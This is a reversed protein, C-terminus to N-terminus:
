WIPKSTELAKDSADEFAKQLSDLLPGTVFADIMKSLARRVLYRFSRDRTDIKRNRWTITSNGFVMKSIEFSYLDLGVVHFRGGAYDRQLRLMAEACKATASVNGAEIVALPEGLRANQVALRWRYNVHIGSFTMLCEGFNMLLPGMHCNDDMRIGTDSCAFRGEYLEFWSWWPDHWKDSPCETLTTSATVNGVTRIKHGDVTQPPIARPDEETAYERYWTSGQAKIPAGSDSRKRLPDYNM